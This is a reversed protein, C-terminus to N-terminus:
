LASRDLFYKPVYGMTKIWLESSVPSQHGSFDGRLETTPHFQAFLEATPTLHNTDSQAINFVHAGKLDSRITLELAAAADRADLYAWLIKADTKVLDPDGANIKRAFDLLGQATNTNPFRFGVFTTDCRRSWELATLENVEKSLAYSESYIFPHAEDLPAYLPSTWKPSWATGYASLSSAYAVIKVGNDAAANFVTFGGLVNNRFVEYERNPQPSPIAALHVVAEAGKMAMRVFDLHEIDGVHLKVGNPVEGEIRDIATVEHGEDVLTQTAVKGLLGLAGTILVKM